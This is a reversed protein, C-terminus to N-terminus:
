PHLLLGKLQPMALIQDRHAIGAQAGIRTTKLAAAAHALRFARPLAQGEALAAALAGAFADGAGTTDVSEVPLHPLWLAGDVSLLFNGGPAAVSAAGVGRRVLNDTAKGASRVDVVAVGTLVEAESANCRLLHIDRLLEEPLPVAPAADLIIQAGAARALHVATAVTELPNELQLLVVKANALLPSANAVDVADLRRNAGSATMTQRHGADDVMILAVGTPAEPDVVVASIDVREAKLRERVANGRADMGVRAILAVRAGFRAGAVAQNAGKGGPAEHLDDGRVSSGSTPLSPGKVLYDMNAGGVVVVDASSESAAHM